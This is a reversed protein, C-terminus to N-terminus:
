QKEMQQAIKQRRYVADQALPSLRAFDDAQRQQQTPAFQQQTHAPHGGEPNSEDLPLGDPLKSETGVGSVVRGILSWREGDSLGRTSDVIRTVAEQQEKDELTLAFATWNIKKQEEM